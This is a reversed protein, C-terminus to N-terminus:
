SVSFNGQLPMFSQHPIHHQLSFYIVSASVILCTAVSCSFLCSHPVCVCWVSSVPTLCVCCLFTKLILMHYVSPLLPFESLWLSSFTTHSVAYPALPIRFKGATMLNLFSTSQGPTRKKVITVASQCLGVSDPVLAGRFEQVKHSLSLIHVGVGLTLYPLSTMTAVCSAPLVKLNARALLSHTVVAKFGISTVHNGSSPRRVAAVKWFLLNSYSFSSGM